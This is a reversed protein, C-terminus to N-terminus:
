VQPAAEPQFFSCNSVQNVFKLGLKKLVEKKVKKEYPPEFEKKETLVLNTEEIVAEISLNENRSTRKISFENKLIERECYHHGLVKSFTRKNM